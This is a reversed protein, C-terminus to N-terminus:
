LQEGCGTALWGHTAAPTEGATSGPMRGPPNQLSHCVRKIRGADLGPPLIGGEVAPSVGAAVVARAQAFGLAKSENRVRRM